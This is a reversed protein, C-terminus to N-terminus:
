DTRTNGSMRHEVPVPKLERGMQYDTKGIGSMNEEVPIDTVVTVMQKDTKVTVLMSQYKRWSKKDKRQQRNGVIMLACGGLIVIVAAIVGLGLFRVILTGVVIMVVGTVVMRTGRNM